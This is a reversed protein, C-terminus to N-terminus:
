KLVVPIVDIQKQSINAFMEYITTQTYFLHSLFVTRTMSFHILHTHFGLDSEATTLCKLIVSFLKYTLDDGNGDSM